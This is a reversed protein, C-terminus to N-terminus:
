RTRRRCRRPTMPLRSADRITHSNMRLKRATIMAATTTPTKRSTAIGTISGSGFAAGMDAGKGHQLLVLVVIGLAALIRDRDDRAKIVLGLDGSVPQGETGIITMREDIDFPTREPM